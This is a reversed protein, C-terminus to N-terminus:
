SSPRGLADMLLYGSWFFPHDAVPLNEGTSAPVSVRPERVPDIPNRQLLQVSRQWADSPAAHPLEQVFERTLDLSSQGGTRWRSWLITRTGAAMLGCGALFLESGDGGDKLAAEAATHFTPLVVTEPAGFPLTMWQSLTAAGRANREPLVSWGYPFRGAEFDSLVVLRRWHPSMWQSGAPLREPLTLVRDDVRALQAAAQETMEQEGRPFLQGSLVATPGRPLANEEVALLSLLPLYRIRTLRLLPEQRPGADALLTEFPVYWLTGDPVLVLERLKGYVKADTQKLLMGTLEAAPTRWGNGSLQDPTLVHNRTYNGIEKLLSETAKRVAAPDEIVWHSVNDQTVAFGHMATAGAYFVIAARDAALGNQITEVTALPPFVFESPERRLAIENLLVEQAISLTQLKEYLRQRQKDAEPEGLRGPLERIQRETAEAERTAAGLQPYKNLLNRRQLQAADSLRSEPAGIIWRLAMLRGGDPLTSFFRKRRAIEAVELARGPQDRRLSLQFWRELIAPLPTLCAGLTDMPALAWDNATPDSLLRHFLEDATRGSITGSVYAQDVLQTHFVRRDSRRLFSIAPALASEGAALDRRQFHLLALGYQYRAGVLGNRMERRAIQRKAKDLAAAAANAEGRYLLEEASLLYLSAELQRLSNGSAWRAASTLAPLAGGKNAVLHTVLGYRFAEEVVGPQRWVAGSYSAEVLLDAAEDYRGAELALKGLELLLIPTLPHDMAGGIQIGNKMEAVAQETKGAGAYALGLLGSMWTQSWHNAPAPRRIFAGLVEAAFPDHAGVPGVLERRRRLAHATCRVIEVVRLPLIQPPAIVGGRQIVADNNIRGQASSMVDPFNGITGRRNSQGWSIRARAAANTDPQIADPFQIRLLWNQHAVALRLASDFQELAQAYNGMQYQCEGVMTHYCISDVWRGESSVVGTQGASRFARLAEDYDGDHLPGFALFYNARPVTRDQQALALSAAATLFLGTAIAAALPAIRVRLPHSAPVLKELHAYLAAREM